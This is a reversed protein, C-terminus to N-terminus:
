RLKSSMSSNLVTTSSIRRQRRKLSLERAHGAGGAGSRRQRHDGATRRRICGTAGFNNTSANTHPNPNLRILTSSYEALARWPMESFVFSKFDTGPVFKGNEPRKLPTAKATKSEGM